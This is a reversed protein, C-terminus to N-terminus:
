GALLTGQILAGRCSFPTGNRYVGAQEKEAHLFYGKAVSRAAHRGDPLLGVNTGQEQWCGLM